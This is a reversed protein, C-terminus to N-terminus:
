PTAPGDVQAVTTDHIAPTDAADVIAIEATWLESGQADGRRCEGSPVRLSAYWRNGEGDRVCVYPIPAWALDRLPQFLDMSPLAVTCGFSLLVTRSFGDGRRELPRFAVERNRGYMRRLEVDDFERFDFGRTVEGGWVEPYVCGMGTAANSSFALAVQGGPVTHTVIDSWDGVVADSRLARVRYQSAVAIRPEMDNWADTERGDAFAVREWDPTRDDMRDIQYGITDPSSAPVPDWFVQVFPMTDETCGPCTAEGSCIEVHHATLSGDATGVGTVAPPVEVLQAQIDSSRVGGSTLPLLSGSSLFSGSAFDIAGGFTQDNTTAEGILAAVFWPRTETSDPSSFRLEHLASALDVGDDFRLQVTKYVVGQDDVNSVPASVPLRDVDAATIEVAGLVRAGTASVFVEARLPALPRGDLPRWGAVVFAQGYVTTGAPVTLTQSVTNAGWCVAGRSLAYPQTDAIVIGGDLIRAMPVGDLQAGAAGMLGAQGNASTQVVPNFPQARRIWSGDEARGRLHRWPMVINAVQDEGYDIIRRAMVTLDDGITSTPSGTGAPTDMSFPIWSLATSPSAVGVGKRREPISFVRLFARDIKWYGPGARCQIRVKRQGGSAFDRVMSPTWPRWVSGGPEVVAEGWRAVGNAWTPTWAPYDRAWLFTTPTDYRRIATTLNVRFHVEVALVQRNLAFAGTNFQVDLFANLTSSVIFLGDDFSNLRSITVPQSLDENFMGAHGTVATVSYDNYTLAGWAEAGSDMVEVIMPRNLNNFITGLPGAIAGSGAYLEITDMDGTARAVLDLTEVDSAADIVGHSYGVDLREVGLKGPRHLNWDPAGM